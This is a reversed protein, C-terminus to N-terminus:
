INLGVDDLLNEQPSERSTVTKRELLRVLVGWKTFPVFDHKKRFIKPTVLCFPVKM